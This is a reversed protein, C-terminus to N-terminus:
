EREESVTLSSLYRSVEKVASDTLELTLQMDRRKKDEDTNSTISHSQVILGHEVMGCPM